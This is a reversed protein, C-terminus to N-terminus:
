IIEGKDYWNIQNAFQCKCHSNVYKIANNILKIHWYIDSDFKNDRKIILGAMMMCACYENLSSMRQCHEDASSVGNYELAIRILEMDINEISACDNVRYLPRLLPQRNIHRIETEQRSIYNKTHLILIGSTIICIFSFLLSRTKLNIRTTSRLMGM